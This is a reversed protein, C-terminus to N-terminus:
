DVVQRVMGAAFTRQNIVRHTGKEIVLASHEQHELAIPADAKIYLGSGSGGERFMAIEPRHPFSHHHGTAEGLAVILRGNTPEVPVATSPITDCPVVLIDGQRIAKSKM